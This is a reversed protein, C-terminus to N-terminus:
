ETRVKPNLVDDIVATIMILTGTLIVLILGAPIFYWWKGALPANWSIAWELMMGLTFGETPGLGIVSIGAEVVVASSVGIILVLFVYALMNPLIEKVVISLDSKGSIRALDVFRRERLSLIQSRISRAMWPWSFLGILIGVVVLSRGQLLAAIIILIVLEPLVLFVNTVFNAGEDILGKKYALVGGLLIAIGLSSFGAIIGVWLSDRIAVCLQAFVDRGAMDTGLLFALSPPEYIGGAGIKSPDRTVFPGIVGLMTIGIVIVSCIQFKRNKALLEKRSPV